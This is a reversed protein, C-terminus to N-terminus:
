AEFVSYHIREQIDFNDLVLFPRIEYEVSVREQLISLGAKALRRITRLASARSATLGIAQLYHHVRESAGAALFTVSNELQFGNIARNSVYAIM